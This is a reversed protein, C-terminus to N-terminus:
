FTEPSLRTFDNQFIARANDSSNRRSPLANNDTTATTATADMKSFFAESGITELDDLLKHVLLPLGNAHSGAVEVFQNIIAPDNFHVKVLSEVDDNSFSDLTILETMSGKLENFDSLQLNDDSLPRTNLVVM